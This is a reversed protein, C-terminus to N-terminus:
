LFCLSSLLRRIPMVPNGILFRWLLSLWCGSLKVDYNHTSCLDKSQLKQSAM